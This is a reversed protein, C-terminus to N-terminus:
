RWTPACRGEVIFGLLKRIQQCSDSNLDNGMFPVDPSRINFPPDYGLVGFTSSSASPLTIRNISGNTYISGCPLVQVAGVVALASPADMGRGRHGIM